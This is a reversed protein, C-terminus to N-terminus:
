KLRAKCIVEEATLAIEKEFRICRDDITIHANPKGFYIEDYPVNYKELWDLTIKGIAKVTAGVNQNNTQMNRATNIIITHGKDHLNKMLNITAYNPFCDSYEQGKEKLYCIVGDLDFCIRLKKNENSDKEDEMKSEGKDEEICKIIKYAGIMFLAKQHIKNDKHLPVMSLFLIAEIFKIEDLDFGNEIVLDDFKSCLEDYSIEKEEGYDSDFYCTPKEVTLECVFGNLSDNKRKVDIMFKNAKVFDYLGVVSHRLKAVDYRADGLDTMTDGILGRPDILKFNAFINSFCFDGHMFGIKSTKILKEIKDNMYCTIDAINIKFSKGNVIFESSEIEDKNKFLYVCRNKIKKDYLFKPIENAFSKNVIKPIDSFRQLIEFLKKIQAYRIGQSTYMEALTNYHIREMILKDDVLSSCPIFESIDKISKASALWKAEAKIKNTDLSSKVVIDKAFEITNFYRPNNM